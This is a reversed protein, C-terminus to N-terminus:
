SIRVVSTFRIKTILLIGDIFLQLFLNQSIYGKDGFLKGHICSLLKTGVLPKRDDVNGPTHVFDLIEGKDNIICHLKCGFFWGISCQGKTAFGKMVRHSHEGKIHCARLPTSDVYSIGTCKGQCKTRLFAVLPLLHKNSLEILRNYSVPNPFETTMNRCVHFLYYHKFDRYCMIHFYIVIIM